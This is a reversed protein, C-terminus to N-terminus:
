EEIIADDERKACSWEWPKEGDESPVCIEDQNCPNSAICSPICYDGIVKEPAEKIDGLVPECFTNPPCECLQYKDPNDEYTHGDMDRCRCSCFSYKAQTQEFNPNKEVQTLCVRTECQVSRTEISYTVGELEMNYDGEDTESLCPAGVMEDGCSSTFVAGIVVLVAISFLSKKM